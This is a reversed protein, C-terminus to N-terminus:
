KTKKNENKEVIKKVIYRPMNNNISRGSLIFKPKYGTLTSKHTLYYPDISICHGGVLGPKFKAFNWKTAALNIVENTNINMKNFIISLENVFAINLDRQINEIVKASEAVKISSAKFIKKKIIKKYLLYIQNCIQNNQGSVIKSIKELSHKKDGPNIREPSYGIGFDKPSKLGSVKELIPICIEETLGPYVTSEFIVISKKKIYKGIILCASKLYQLDPKNKKTIPTPM